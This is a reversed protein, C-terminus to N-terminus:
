GRRRLRLGSTSALILVILGVLIDNWLRVSMVLGRLIFSATILWVGGAAAIWDLTKATRVNSTLAAWAGVLMLMLGVIIHSWLFAPVTGLGPM